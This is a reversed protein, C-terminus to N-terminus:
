QAGGQHREQWWATAQAILRRAEEGTVAEAALEDAAQIFRPVEAAKAEVESAYTEIIVADDLIAFSHQPALSLIAGSGPIIGLTVRPLMTAQALRDLQEIMAEPACLPIRLVTEMILFQFTHGPEYLVDQRKMRAAVAEGIDGATGYFRANEAMRAAAYDPTQLLGPVITLEVNRFLKSERVLRDWDRQLAVAGGGRRHTWLRHAADEEAALGTLEPVASDQGCARAWETIEDKSVARTGNEVKVVATRDWGLGEALQAQTLKADRRMERLRWALSGPQTPRQPSPSM